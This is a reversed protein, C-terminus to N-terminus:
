QLVEKKGKMFRFTYEDYIFKKKMIEKELDLM